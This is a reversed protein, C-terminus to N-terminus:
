VDAELLRASGSVTVPPNHIHTDVFPLGLEAGIIETLELRFDNIDLQYVEIPSVQTQLLDAQQVEITKTDWRIQIAM